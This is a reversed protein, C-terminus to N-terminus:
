ACVIDLMALAPAYLWGFHGGKLGSLVGCVLPVRSIRMLGMCGGDFSNNVTQNSSGSNFASAVRIKSATKSYCTILDRNYVELRVFVCLINPKSPFVTM